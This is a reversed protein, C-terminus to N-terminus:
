ERVCKSLSKLSLLNRGEAMCWLKLTLETHMAVLPGKENSTPTETNPWLKFLGVKRHERPTLLECLLWSPTILDTMFSECYDGTFGAKGGNSPFCVKLGSLGSRRCLRSCLPALLIPMGKVCACMGIHRNFGYM